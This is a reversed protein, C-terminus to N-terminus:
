RAFIRRTPVTSGNPCRQSGAALALAAQARIARHRHRNRRPRGGTRLAGDIPINRPWALMPRRSEGPNVYPQRYLEMEEDSLQRAMGAPLVKEIFM